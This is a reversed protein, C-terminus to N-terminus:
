SMIGQLDGGYTTTPQVAVLALQGQQLAFTMVGAHSVPGSGEVLVLELTSAYSLTVAEVVSGDIIVDATASASGTRTGLVQVGTISGLAARTAEDLAAPNVLATIGADSFLTDRNVFQSNLFRNLGDSALNVAHNVAGQDIPTAAAGFLEHNDSTKVRVEDVATRFPAAQPLPQPEPPQTPTPIPTPTPTPTAKAATDSGVRVPVVTTCAGVILLLFCLLPVLRRM